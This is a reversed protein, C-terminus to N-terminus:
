VEKEIAKELGSIDHAHSQVLLGDISEEDDINPKPGTYVKYGHVFYYALSIIWVGGNIVCAYNMTEKSPSREDPFSSMVIVYAVWSCTGVNIATSLYKGWYFPGPVFRSRGVPLLVLFVPMAWALSNSTVSLSFLANSGAGGILVLLGILLSLIGAFGTARVPVAIKPNVYKVYNYVFPLGDDRAFAWIQRSAAILISCAMLYQGVAILSMFAICWKKGLADYIIQAIASGTNSDLVAAVDGDKICFAAVIVIAFGFVWCVSISGIIGFPISRQANKAEESCHIVADFAGITWICPMWSLMFSWGGNWNRANEFNTFVFSASNYTFDKYHVGVPVAIIFLAILFCNVYISISQLTATHKTTLCCVIVNTVICAAFIGYYKATTIVFDGDTSVVIASLIQVALGYSISCLGGCLGLSNTCGIMFSLPVRLSDPAYYNTWYYLGGSTPIASGLFTMSIGILLIFFGACCWGWVLGAPGAALGVNMTSAISPLLGMISFAIGFVQITSYHRRLEQKYGIEALLEEDGINAGAQIHRIESRSHLAEIYESRASTIAGLIPSKTASM